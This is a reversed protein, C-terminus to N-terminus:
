EGIWANYTVDLAKVVNDPVVIEGTSWRQVTRKDVGASDALTRKWHYHWLQQAQHQWNTM